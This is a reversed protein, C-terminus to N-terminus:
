LLKNKKPLKVKYYIPKTVRRPTALPPWDVVSVGLSNYLRSPQRHRGSFTFTTVMSTTTSIWLLDYTGYRWINGNVFIPVIIIMPSAKAQNGRIPEDGRYGRVLSGYSLRHNSSKMWFSLRCTIFILELQVYNTVKMGISRNSDTSNSLNLNTPIQLSTYSM